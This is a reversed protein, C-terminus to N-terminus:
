MPNVPNLKDAAWTLPNNRIYSRLKDWENERVIREWYNRQWLRGEFRPWRHEKVGRIYENTTMTKFWQVITGLEVGGASPCVRPDAGVPRGNKNILIFHVHNPMVIFADSEIGPFKEPLKNWWRQVMEGAPSLRVEAPEGDLPMRLPAGTHAGADSAVVVDGFLCLHQQVCLTVFYGGAGSYDYEKLRISKRDM